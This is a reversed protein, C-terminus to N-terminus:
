RFGFIVLGIAGWLLLSIGGSLALTARPSWRPRVGPHHDRLVKGALERELRASPAAGSEADLSPCVDVRSSTSLLTAQHSTMKRTQLMGHKM